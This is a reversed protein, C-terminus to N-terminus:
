CVLTEDKGCRLLPAVLQAVEHCGVWTHRKRKLEWYLEGINAPMQCGGFATNHWLIAIGGWGFSEIMDLARECLMRASVHERRAQEYLAVDMIVLPIEVFPYPRERRFDYPLYPFCAGARFGIRDAYGVTSDYSIGLAAVEEFLNDGAFRLWHQRVGSVQCGQAVLHELELGLTHGELSTYSGHLAIEMNQEVLLRLMRKVKSHELEYNADRVHGNRSIVNYTSRLGADTECRVMAEVWDLPSKRTVIARAVSGLISIFLSPDRFHVAAIAMNKLLRKVDGVPNIPLYDLDHSPAILISDGGGPSIAREPWTSGISNRICRNLEYMALGAYPISADLGFRGHVTASFPIRGIEDRQTVAYEDACSLWEFVEGLWDIDTTDASAFFCPLSSLGLKTYMPTPKLAVHVPPPAPVNAPRFAYVAPISLDQASSPTVGYCIRADTSCPTSECEVMSDYGYIACFARFAYAIRQKTALPLEASM